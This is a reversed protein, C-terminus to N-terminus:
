DTSSNFNDAYITKMTNLDRRTPTRVESKTSLVRGFPTVTIVRVSAGYMLDKSNDSHGNIGLAHGWEHAAVDSINELTTAGGTALTMQASRLWKESSLSRTLGVTSRSPPIYSGPIFRITVDARSTNDVVVYRLV